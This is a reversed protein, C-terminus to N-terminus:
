GNTKSQIDWPEMPKPEIRTDAVEQAKLDAKM